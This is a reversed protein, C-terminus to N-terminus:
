FTSCYINQEILMPITAEIVGLDALHALLTKAERFTKMRLHNAQVVSYIQMPEKEYFLAYHLENKANGHQVRVIRVLLKGGFHKLQSPLEKFRIFGNGNHQITSCYTM